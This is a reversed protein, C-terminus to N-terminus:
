PEELIEAFGRLTEYAAPTMIERAFGDVLIHYTRHREARGQLRDIEELLASSRVEARGRDSIARDAVDRLDLYDRVGQEEEAKMREVAGRLRDVEARAEDRERVMQQWMVDLRAYEVDPLRSAKLRDNEARLERWDELSRAERKARDQNEDTVSALLANLRAVEERLTDREEVVKTAFVSWTGEGPGELVSM